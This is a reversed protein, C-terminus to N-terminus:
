LPRGEVVEVLWSRLRQRARGISEFRETRVTRSGAGGRLDRTAKLELGVRPRERLEVVYDADAASATWTEIADGDGRAWSCVVHCDNLAASMQDASEFRDAPDLQLAKEVVRSLSMPIQPNLRHPLEFEGSAVADPGAFPYEGTLLRYLTCATAWLDSAPSSGDVPVEPAMHRWYIQGDVQIRRVTDEAVGFDSIVARGNPTLLLNSPKVDRHVIGLAHAHGLGSLADRTWRLADVMAVDDRDLRDDVSGGPFYDMVMFPRPPELRVNRISAIRSHQSLRTQVQAERMVQDFTVGGRFLKIAVPVDQHTDQGLYVEGFNGEGLKRDV